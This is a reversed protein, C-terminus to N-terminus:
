GEASAFGRCVFGSRRWGASPSRLVLFICRVARLSWNLRGLNPCAMAMMNGAATRHDKGNPRAVKFLMYVRPVGAFRRCVPFESLQDFRLKSHVQLDDDVRM